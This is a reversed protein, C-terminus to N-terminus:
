LFELCVLRLGQEAMAALEQGQTQLREVLRLHEVEAVVLIFPLAQAMVALMVKDRHLHRVARQAQGFVAAELVAQPQHQHALRLQTPAVGEVVVQQLLATLFLIVAMQHLHLLLAVLAAV